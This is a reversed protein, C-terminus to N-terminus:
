LAGVDVAWIRTCGAAIVDRLRTRRAAGNFAAQRAQITKISRITEIQGRDTPDAPVIVYDFLHLGGDRGLHTLFQLYRPSQEGTMPGALIITAACERKDLRWSPHQHRM